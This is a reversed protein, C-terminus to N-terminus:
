EKATQKNILEELSPYAVIYFIWQAELQILLETYADFDCFIRQDTGKDLESCLEQKLLSSLKTKIDLIRQFEGHKGPAKKLVHTINELVFAVDAKIKETEIILRDLQAQPQTINKYFVLWEHVCADQQKTM